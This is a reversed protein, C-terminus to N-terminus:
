SPLFGAQILLARVLGSMTVGADNAAREVRYHEDESLKIALTKGRAAGSTDRASLTQARAIVQAVGTLRAPRPEASRKSRAVAARRQAEPPRIGEDGIVQSVETSRLHTVPVRRESFAEGDYEVLIVTEDRLLEDQQAPTLATLRRLLMTHGALRIVLEARLRGDAIMPMYTWLGGRLDALNEGRRELERWIAALRLLNQATITLQAALEARLESTNMAVIARAAAGADTAPIIENM